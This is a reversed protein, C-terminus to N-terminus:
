SLSVRCALSAAEVQASWRGQTMKPRHAAGFSSDPTDARSAEKPWDSTIGPWGFAGSPATGAVRCAGM